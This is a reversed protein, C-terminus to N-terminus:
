LLNKMKTNIKKNELKNIKQSKKLYFKKNMQNKIIKFNNMTNM